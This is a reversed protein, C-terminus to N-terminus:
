EPAAVNSLALYEGAMDGRIPMVDDPKSETLRFQGVFKEFKELVGMFVRTDESIRRSLSDKIEFFVGEPPPTPAPLPPVSTRRAPPGFDVSQAPPPAPSPAPTPNTRDRFWGYNGRTSAESRELQIVLELYKSGFNLAAAPSGAFICLAATLLSVCGLILAGFFKM